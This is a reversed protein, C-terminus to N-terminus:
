NWVAIKVDNPCLYFFLFFKYLIYAYLVDRGFMSRSCINWNLINHSSDIIWIALTVRQVSIFFIYLGTFEHWMPIQGYGVTIDLVYIYIYTYLYLIWVIEIAQFNDLRQSYMSWGVPQWAWSFNM